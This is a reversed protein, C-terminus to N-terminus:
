KSIDKCARTGTEYWGFNVGHATTMAFASNRVHWVHGGMLGSICNGTTRNECLSGGDNIVLEDINGAMDHVGYDSVCDPMSGSPVLFMRLAESMKDNPSKSQMVNIGKLGLAKFADTQTVEEYHRDFNCKTKDRHFGDGYPLPHWNPGEAALAWERAHCLRKGISEVERKASYWTMWDEPKEGPHNPWEYRDMCFHLHVKSGKCVTPNKYEGCAWALSGPGKKRNGDLDTNYLCEIQLNTCYDGEVEVMDSPCASRITGQPEPMEPAGADKDESAARATSHQATTHQHTLDCASAVM